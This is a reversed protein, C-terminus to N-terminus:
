PDPDDNSRDSEQQTTRALKPQNMTYMLEEIEEPRMPLGTLAAFELMTCILITRLRSLVRM